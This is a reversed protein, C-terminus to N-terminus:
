ALGVIAGATTGASRVARVRLSLVAGAPVNRFTVDEDNALTRVVIDGGEGIYIAKTVRALDADDAPTVPFCEEAPAMPNDAFQAFPDYTM